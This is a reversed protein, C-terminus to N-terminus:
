LVRTRRRFDVCIEDMVDTGTAAVLEAIMSKISRSNPDIDQQEWGVLDSTSFYGPASDSCLVVNDMDLERMEQLSPIGPMSSGLLFDWEEEDGEGDSEPRIFHGEFVKPPDTSEKRQRERSLSVYHNKDFVALAEKDMLDWTLTEPDLVSQPKFDMKYKM